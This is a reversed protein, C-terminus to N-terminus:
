AVLVEPSRKCFMELYRLALRSIECEFAQVLAHDVVPREAIIHDMNLLEVQESLRPDVNRPVSLDIIRKTGLAEFEEINLLYSNCRTAFVLTEYRLWSRKDDWPVDCLGSRNTFAGPRKAAIACNIESHGVYLVCGRIHRCVIEEVSLNQQPWQSRVWKGVKLAKQFLFHLDSNANCRGEDYAQRVQGQVQTEGVVASDLGATVRCLHAFCDAGFFTYLKQEFDGTVEAKLRQIIASHLNDPEPHSFYIETRNCTSLLIYFGDFGGRGLSKAVQERLALEACKHNIGLIGIQM